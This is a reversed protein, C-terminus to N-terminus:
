DIPQITGTTSANNCRTPTPWASLTWPGGNVCDTGAGVAYTAIGVLELGSSTAWYVDMSSARIVLDIWIITNGGSVCSDVSLHGWTCGNAHSAATRPSVVWSANLNLCKNGCGVPEAAGAAIGSLTVLYRESTIDNCNDAFGCARSTRPPRSASSGLPRACCCPNWLLGDTERWLRRATKPFWQGLRRMSERPIALM